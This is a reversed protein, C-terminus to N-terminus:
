MTRNLSDFVISAPCFCIQKWVVYYSKFLAFALTPATGVRPKWVVYYSKFKLIRLYVLRKFNTEM